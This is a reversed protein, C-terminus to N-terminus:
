PSGASLKYVIDDQALSESLFIVTSVYRM